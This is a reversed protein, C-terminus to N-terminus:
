RRNAKMLRMVRGLLSLLDADFPKAMILAKMSNAFSDLKVKNRDDCCMKKFILILKQVKKKVSFSVKQLNGVRM